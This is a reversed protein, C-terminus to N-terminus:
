SVLCYGGPKGKRFIRYLAKTSAVAEGANTNEVTCASLRPRKVGNHAAAQNKNIAGQM